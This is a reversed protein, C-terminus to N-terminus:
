DAYLQKCSQVTGHVGVWVWVLAHVLSAAVDCTRRAGPITCAQTLCLTKFQLTKLVFHRSGASRVSPAEVGPRSAM